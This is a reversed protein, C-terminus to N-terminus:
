ARDSPLAVGALARVSRAPDPSTVLAEGVLVADIGLGYLEAADEPGSIGSESVTPIGAPILGILRATTSLDVQFTVLDRNNIGIISAGCDLATSTEEEGHVEVLSALGIETTLRVMRRLAPADMAAVILLVADAGMARSEWLQYESIVFEKRLVPVSVAARAVQLDDGRAGFHAADTLVSIAACGGAEYSSALTAADLGPRIAGRSPSARKVEAIVSLGPKRLAAIFDRTAPMSAVARELEALSREATRSAVEVQKAALITELYM